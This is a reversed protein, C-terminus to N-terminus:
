DDSPVWRFTFSEIEDFKIVRVWSVHPEQFVLVTGLSLKEIGNDVYGADTTAYVGDALQYRTGSKTVIAHLNNENFVDAM